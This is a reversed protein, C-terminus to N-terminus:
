FVPFSNHRQSHRRPWVNSLIASPLASPCGMSFFSSSVSTWRCDDSSSVSPSDSYRTLQKRPIKYRTERDGEFTSCNRETNEPRYRHIVKKVPALQHKESDATYVYTILYCTMNNEASSGVERIRKAM